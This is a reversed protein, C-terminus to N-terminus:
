WATRTRSRSPPSAPPTSPAVTLARWEREAAGPKPEVCRKVARGGEYTLAHTHTLDAM